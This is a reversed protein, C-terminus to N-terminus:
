SVTSDGISQIATQIVASSPQILESSSDEAHIDPQIYLTNTSVGDDVEMIAFQCSIRQQLQQSPEYLLRHHELETLVFDILKQLRALYFDTTSAHSLWSRATRISFLMIEIPLIVPTMFRM